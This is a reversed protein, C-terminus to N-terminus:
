IGHILKKIQHTIGEEIEGMDWVDKLFFEMNKGLQLYRKLNELSNESKKKTIIAPHTDTNVGANSLMQYKYHFNLHSTINSITNKLPSNLIRHIERHPIPNDITTNYKKLLDFFVHAYLKALYQNNIFDRDQKLNVFDIIKNVADIDKDNVWITQCEQFRWTIRNIATDFDM